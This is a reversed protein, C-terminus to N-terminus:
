QSCKCSLVDRGMGEQRAIDQGLFQDVSFLSKKEEERRRRVMKVVWGSDAVCAKVMARDSPRRGNLVFARPEMPVQNLGRSRGSKKIEAAHFRRCGWFGNTPSRLFTFSASASTTGVAGRMSANLVVKPDRKGRNRDPVFGENRMPM